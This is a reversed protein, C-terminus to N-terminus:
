WCQYDKMLKNMMVNMIIRHVVINLFRLSHRDAALAQTRTLPVRRPLLLGEDGAPAAADGDVGGASYVPLCGTIQIIKKKTKM